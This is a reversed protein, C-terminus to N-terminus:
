QTAPRTGPTFKQVNYNFVDGVYLNREKDAVVWHAEGFQGNAKGLTGLAGIVKGEMDAKILKGNNGDTVYMFGDPGISIGNPSNITTIAKIYNGDKDFVSIRNNNRDTVYVLGKNDVVISHAVGFDGPMTGKKGWSKVFNGDKDLKRVRAVDGGHGEAIYIEGGPGFAVDCPEAFLPFKFAKNFEGAAGVAGLALVVRGQPNLKYVVNATVDTIWINDQPDIRIGHARQIMGEALYRVFQGNPRFELLPHPGRNFVFFNGVSNIAVSAVQGFTAGDPLKFPDGVPTYALPPMESQAHVGLAGLVVLLVILRKM